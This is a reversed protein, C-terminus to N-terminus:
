ENNEEVRKLYRQILRDIHNTPKQINNKELTMITTSFLLGCLLVINKSGIGKIEQAESRTLTLLEEITNIGHKKLAYLLKAVMRKKSPQVFQLLEVLNYKRYEEPVKFEEGLARM